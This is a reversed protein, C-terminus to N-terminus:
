LPVWLVQYPERAYKHYHLFHLIGIILILTDEKIEQRVEPQNSVTQTGDRDVSATELLDGDEKMLSILPHESFEHHKM